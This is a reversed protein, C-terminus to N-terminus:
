KLLDKRYVEFMFNDRNDKRVDLSRKIISDLYLQVNSLLTDCKDNYFSTVLIGNDIQNAFSFLSNDIVVVSEMKRQKEFISLDKIYLGPELFLCHERYLRVDFYKKDREIYDLIVDAYSKCSATFVFVEFNNSLYELFEYMGPRIILPIAIDKEEIGDEYSDFYLITDHQTYINDLDSHILTEDLDLIITKKLTNNLNDKPLHLSTSITQIQTKNPFSKPLNNILNLANTLYNDFNGNSNCSSDVYYKHFAKIFETETQKTVSCSNTFSNLEMNNHENGESETSAKSDNSYEELYENPKTEPHQSSLVNELSM